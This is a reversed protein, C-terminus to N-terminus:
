GPHKRSGWQIEISSGSIDLTVQCSQVPGEHRSPYGNTLPPPNGQSLPWNRFTKINQKQLASFVTSFVTSNPAYHKIRFMHAFNGAITLVFHM